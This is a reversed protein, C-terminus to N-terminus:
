MFWVVLSTFYVFCVFLRKQRKQKKMMWVIKVKSDLREEADFFSIATYLLRVAVVNYFRIGTCLSISVTWPGRPGTTRMWTNRTLASLLYVMKVFVYLTYFITSPINSICVVPFSPVHLPTWTPDTMAMSATRHYRSDTLLLPVWGKM